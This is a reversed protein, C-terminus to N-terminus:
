KEPDIGEIKAQTKALAHSIASHVQRRQDEPLGLTPLLKLANLIHPIAEENHDNEALLLGLEHQIKFNEPLFEAATRMDDLAEAVTEENKSLILGRTFLAQGARPSIELSRNVWGLASELEGRHRDTEALQWLIPATNTELKRVERSLMKGIPDAAGEPVAPRLIYARLLFKSAKEPSNSSLFLAAANHQPEFETPALECARLVAQLAETSRDLQALLVGRQLNAYWDDPNKELALEFWRLADATRHERVALSGQMRIPEAAEPYLQTAKELLKRIRADDGEFELAQVLYLMYALHDPRLQLAKDFERVAKASDGLQLQLQGLACRAEDSDALKIAARLAEGSQQYVESKAEGELNGASMMLAIGLGIRANSSHPFSNSANQFIQAPTKFDQFGEAEGLFLYCWGTGLSMELHDRKTAFISQDWQAAAALLETGREYELKAADLNARQKTRKYETLQVRGQSWSVYPSTPTQEVARAFLATESQWAATRAISSWAYVGAVCALLAAAMPAPLKKWAFLALSFAFGFVALYLYRDAQPFIGLASIRVLMPLLSAPILLWAVAGQIARRKILLVAIVFCAASWLSAILITSDGEAFQPQFPRFLNLDSPWALLSLFGGLLELRLLHIRSAPVGFRTTLTFLGATLEGFVLMRAIAYLILAILVPFYGRLRATFSKFQFMDLVLLMPLTALASEKSLLALLFWGGTAWPTKSRAGQIWKWHSSLALLCFLGALPDCIGSIWAVSEVHVPHLAFLVGTSIGVWKNQSLGAALQAACIVVALHMLLSVWHFGLASGGGVAHGVMLAVTTLPRWFGNTELGDPDLGEWYPRTFAKGINAFSRVLTNDRVLPIDDYVFDGSLAPFFVALTIVALLGYHFHKNFLAAVKQALQHM